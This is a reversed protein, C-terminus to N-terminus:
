SLSSTAAKVTMVPCPARRVVQEAVSGLLVHELGTRGHTGMVILDVEERRAVELIQECPHGVEIHLELPWGVLQPPLFQQLATHAQERLDVTVADTVEVSEELTGSYPGLLAFTNHPLGCHESHRSTSYTEVEKAIVHMILLSSSFREAISSAYYMAETSHPSFDVPVLITNITRDM